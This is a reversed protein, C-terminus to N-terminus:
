DVSSEQFVGVFDEIIGEWKGAQVALYQDSVGGDLSIVYDVGVLSDDGDDYVYGRGFRHTDNFHAVQAYDSVDASRGLQFNSAFMITSCTTRAEDCDLFRVFYSYSGTTGVLSERAYADASESARETILLGADGLITETRDISVASMDLLSATLAAAIWTIPM